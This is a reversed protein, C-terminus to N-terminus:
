PLKYYNRTGTCVYVPVPCAQAALGHVVISEQIGAKAPIVILIILLWEGVAQYFSSFSVECSLCHHRDEGNEM